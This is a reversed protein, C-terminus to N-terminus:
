QNIQKTKGRKPKAQRRPPPAATAGRDRGILAPSHCGTLQMEILDSHISEIASEVPTFNVIKAPHPLSLLLPPPLPVSFAPPPSPLLHLTIASSGNRKVHCRLWNAPALEIEDAVFSM